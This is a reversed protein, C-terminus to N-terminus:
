PDFNKFFILSFYVAGCSISLFFGFKLLVDLFLTIVDDIVFFIGDKPKSM